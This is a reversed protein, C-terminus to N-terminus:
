TCTIAGDDGRRCFDPWGSQDWWGPLGTSELLAAFGPDTRLAAYAPLLWEDNLVNFGAAVLEAYAAVLFDAQGLHLLLLATLGYTPEWYNPALSGQLRRSPV